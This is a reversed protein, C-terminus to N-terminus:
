SGDKTWILMLGCSADLSNYRVPLVASGTYLEIGAIERPSPLLSLDFPRPMVVDDVIVQLICGVPVIVASKQDSPNGLTTVGGAGRTGVLFERQQGLGGGSIIAVGHFAFRILDSVATSNHKDIQDQALFQGEGIKRRYEFEM